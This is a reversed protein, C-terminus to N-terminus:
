VGPPLYLKVVVAGDSSTVNNVAFSLLGIPAVALSPLPPLSDAIAMVNALSTDSPAALTVYQDDVSNPLSTVYDQASDRFGDNNGDGGNPAANEIGASVGDGDTTVLITFSALSAGGAGDSAEVNISYTAPGSLLNGNAVTVVGS